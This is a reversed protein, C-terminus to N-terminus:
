QIQRDQLGLALGALGFGKLSGAGWDDFKNKWSSSGELRANYRVITMRARAHGARLQKPDSPVEVTTPDVLTTGTAHTLQHRLMEARAWCRLGEDAIGDRLKEALEGQQAQAASRVLRLLPFPTTAPKKQKQVLEQASKLAADPESWEAILALAKLRPELKGPRNAIDLAKEPEKKLLHLATYALRTADSLQGRAAPPATLTPATIPPDVSLWLSQTFMPPVSLGGSNGNTLTTKIEEAITRAHEGNGTALFEEVACAALAEPQEGPFFGQTVVGFILDSQGMQALKHTLRRVTNLRSEFDCPRERDRMAILTQLLEQQVSRDIKHVVIQATAARAPKWPYRTGATVQEPNGGMDCQMLALEGFLADREWSKNAKKLETRAQTLQERGQELREPTPEVHRFTHEGAALCIMAQFLPAETPTLPSAEAAATLDQLALAMVDDRSDQQSARFYSVVAYSFTAVFMLPLLVVAVYHWRPREEIDDEIVGAQELAEVSVSRAEGGMVNDPVPVDSRALSPRNAHPNRWDAKEIKKQEPVKQRHRCDPCIVNKGQKDWSETWTHDCVACVMPITRQDPPPEPEATAAEAEALAKLALTDADIPPKAAPPTRRPEPIGLKPASKPLSPPEATRAPPATRPNATPAAPAPAPNPATTKGAVTFPKRCEPNQCRVSKGSLEEKLRYRKDCHPCQTDIAM